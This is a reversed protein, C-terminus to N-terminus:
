KSFRHIGFFLHGIEENWQLMLLVSGSVPHKPCVTHSKDSGESVINKNEAANFMRPNLEDFGRLFESTVQNWMITSFLLLLTICYKGHWPRISQNIKSRSLATVGAFLTTTVYKSIFLGHGESDARGLFEVRLILTNLQTFLIVKFINRTSVLLSLLATKIRCHVQRDYTHIPSAPNIHSVFSWLTNLVM